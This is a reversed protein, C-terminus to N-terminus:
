IWGTGTNPIHTGGLHRTNPNPRLSLTPPSYSYDTCHELLRQRDENMKGVRFQGLCSPWPGSDAGVRTNFDSLLVVQETSPISRLNSPLNEYFEDKTGPSVSLTPAYVSILLVSGETTNHRLTLLSESGDSDPEVKNLLSNKVVFGVGHKRLEESTKSALLLHRRKGQLRKRTCNM